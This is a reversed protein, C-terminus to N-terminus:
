SSEQGDKILQYFEGPNKGSASKEFSFLVSKKSRM